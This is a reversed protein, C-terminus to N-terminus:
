EKKLPTFKFEFTAENNLEPYQKDATRTTAVTKGSAYYGGSIDFLAETKFTAKIEIGEPTMDVAEDLTIKAKGNEVAALKYKVPVTESGAAPGRVTSAWEEGVAVPKGPLEPGFLDSKGSFLAGLPHSKSLAYEGRTGLSIKIPKALQELIRKRTAEDGEPRKVVGDEVCLDIKKGAVSGTVTMKNLLLECEAKGDVIRVVTLTGAYEMRSEDTAGGERGMKLNCIWDATMRSGEKLQWSMDVKEQAILILCVLALRIM